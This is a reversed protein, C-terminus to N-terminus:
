SGPNVAIVRGRRLLLRNTGCHLVLTHYELDKSRSLGWGGLFYLGTKSSLGLTKPYRPLVCGGDYLWRIVLITFINAVLVFSIVSASILEM